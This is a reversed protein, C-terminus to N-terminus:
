NKGLGIDDCERSNYKGLEDCATAEQLIGSDVM